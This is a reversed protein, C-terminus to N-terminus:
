QGMPTFSVIGGCSSINTQTIEYYEGSKVPFTMSCSSQASGAVSVCFSNVLETTPPSSTGVLLRLSAQNSASAYCDAHVFGDSAAQYITTLALGVTRTGLIKVTGHVDLTALPSTTGIGVDGGSAITMATASNPSFVIPAATATNLNLTGGTNVIEAKL